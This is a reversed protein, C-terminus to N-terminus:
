RNAGSTARRVYVSPPVIEIGQFSGLSLLDKDGAVLLTAKATVATELIADDNADRCLGSVTGCIRVRCAPQLFEDLMAQVTGSDRGFKQVLVRVVEHEIFDSIAIQDVTLAHTLAIGPTGGFELASIWVNTDLVVIM